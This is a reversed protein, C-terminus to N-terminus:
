YLNSSAEKLNIRVKKEDQHRVKKCRIKTEDKKRTKKDLEEITRMKKVTNMSLM